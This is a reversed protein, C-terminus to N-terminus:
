VAPELLRTSIRNRNIIVSDVPLLMDPNDKLIRGIDDDTLVRGDCAINGRREKILGNKDPKEGKMIYLCEDARDIMKHGNPDDFVGGFESVGISSTLQIAKSNGNHGVLFRKESIIRAVRHAVVCAGESDTNPLLIYVEDGGMRGLIDSLRLIREKDNQARFCDAVERLVQDGALHGHTDNVWKFKDLDFILLSLPGNRSSRQIEEKLRREFARRNPLGTLPDVDRMSELYIVKCITEAMLKAIDASWESSVKIGAEKKEKFFEQLREYIDNYAREHLSNEPVTKDASIFFESIKPNGELFEEMANYALKASCRDFEDPTNTDADQSAVFTDSEEPNAMFILCREKLSVDFFHLAVIKM